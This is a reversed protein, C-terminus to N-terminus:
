TPGQVRPEGALVLPPANFCDAAQDLEALGVALGELGPGLAYAGHAKGMAGVGHADIVARGTGRGLWRM